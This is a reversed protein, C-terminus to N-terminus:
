FINIERIYCWEPCLLINLTKPNIEKEPNISITIYLEYTKKIVKASFLAGAPNSSAIGALPRDCVWGKFRAAVPILSSISPDTVLSRCSFNDLVTV